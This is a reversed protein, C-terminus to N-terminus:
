RQQASDELFIRRWRNQHCSPGCKTRGGKSKVLYPVPETPQKKSAVIRSCYSKSFLPMSPPTFQNSLHKPFNEKGFPPWGFHAVFITEQTGSVAPGSWLRFRVAGLVTKCLPAYPHSSDPPCIQEQASCSTHRYKALVIVKLRQNNRLTNNHFVIIFIVSEGVSKNLKSNHNWEYYMDQYPARSQLTISNYNINYHASFVRFHTAM